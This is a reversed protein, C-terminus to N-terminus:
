NINLLAKVKTAYETKFMAADKENVSGAAEFKNMDKNAKALLKYLLTNDDTKAAEAFSQGQALGKILDKATTDSIAAIDDIIREQREELYRNADVQVTYGHKNIAEKLLATADAKTAGEDSAKLWGNLVAQHIFSDASSQLLSIMDTEGLNAAELLSKGGTLEERLEAESTEMYSATTNIISRISEEAIGEDSSGEAMKGYGTQNLAEEISKAASQKLKELEKVSLNGAMWESELDRNVNDTLLTFLDSYAMGSASVLSQGAELDTIVDNYEKNAYISTYLIISDLKNDVLTQGYKEMWTTTEKDYGKTNVIASVKEAGNKKAKDLADAPLKGYRVASDLDENMKATLSDTLAAADLGTAEVLSKGDRLARSIDISNQESLVAADSVIRNLRYQIIDSGDNHLSTIFGTKNWASTVLGYIQASLQQKLQEAEKESLGSTRVEYTMEQEFLDTLKTALDSPELGSAAALTAGSEISNSVESGDKDSVSATIVDLNSLWKNLVLTGFDGASDSVAKNSDSAQTQNASTGLESAYAQHVPLVIGSTSVALIAAGMLVIFQKKM